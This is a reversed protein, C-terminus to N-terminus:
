DTVRRRTAADMQHTVQYTGEGLAIHAHEPHTVVAGGPGVVVLPGLFSGRCWSPEAAGEFCEADGTVVHRSGQTHGVALQAETAKGRPHGEEVRHVYVDGQRAVQGVEAARFDRVEPRAKASRQVQEHAEVASITTTM